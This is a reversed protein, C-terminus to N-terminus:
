WFGKGINFSYSLSLGATYQNADATVPSSGADGLLYKYSAFAGATFGNGFAYTVQALVGASDFGGSANFVPLPNLLLGAMAAQQPTVGFYAEMYGGGAYSLRPGVAFRWPGNSFIADAALDGMLAEYGGFGYRLEGRLRLWDLPYWEAFGGVEASFGVDGLGRLRDSDGEDRGWDLRGAPGARFPGANILAFSPSDDVSTFTNLGSEKSLSFILGPRVTYEDGGPYTPQLVGSAGITVYWDEQVPQAPAKAYLDAAAASGAIGSAVVFALGTVRCTGVFRGM